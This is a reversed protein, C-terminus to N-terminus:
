KCGNGSGKGKGKGKEKKEAPFAKDMMPVKSPVAISKKNKKAM